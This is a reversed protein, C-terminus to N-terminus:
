IPTQYERFNTCTSRSFALGLPMGSMIAPSFKFVTFSQPASGASEFTRTCAAASGANEFPRTYAVASGANKSIRTCAV